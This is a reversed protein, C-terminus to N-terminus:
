KTQNPLTKSELLGNEQLCRPGATRVFSVPLFLSLCVTFPAHTIRSMDGHSKPETRPCLCCHRDCVSGNGRAARPFLYELIMVNFCYLISDLTAQCLSTRCRFDKGLSTLCNTFKRLRGCLGFFWRVRM